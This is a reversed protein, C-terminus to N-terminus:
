KGDPMPVLVTPAAAREGLGMRMDMGSPQQYLRLGFVPMIALLHDFIDSQIGEYVAWVTTNTFCYLEMPVGEPTPELVRVMLTMGQHIGPNARLYADVYARFTGINTLRRQNALCEARLGLRERRAENSQELAKSKRALYDTLLEIDALRRIDDAELFRVSTVDLRLTRKIRRGGSESMGRWNRFSESMLRWTPIMTITKDWNQVKVTHLAIDIVDGDAGVQPMEIWDGVRLTDSSTLQVGATFSLLTDKFVLLLVASMAGLGSLLILPSRDILVGVIVVAALCYLLLKLLQVYGKISKARKGSHERANLFASLLADVARVARFVTMAIAVNRVVTSVAPNLGPVLDIGLQLVLAPLIQASRSLFEGDMLMRGKATAAFRDQIGSILRRIVRAAVFRALLALLILALLGITGQLWPYQEFWPQIQTFLALNEAGATPVEATTEVTMGTETTM